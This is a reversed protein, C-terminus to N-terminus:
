SSEKKNDEKTKGFYYGEPNVFIPGRRIPLFLSGEPNAFIPGRRIPLFSVRGSQCFHSGETNAFNTSRRIPLFPVGGSQCFQFWEPNAFNPGRRIPVGGPKYFYGRPFKKLNEGSVRGSVIESAKISNSNVLLPTEDKGLGKRISTLVRIQRNM